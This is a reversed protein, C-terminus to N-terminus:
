LRSGRQWPWKGEIEVELAFSLFVRILIVIALAGLSEITTDIAVTNIIDAAVLFELGLLIARGLRARFDHYGFIINRQGVADILFFYGSFIIGLIIICVGIIEISFIFWLVIRISAKEIAALDAAAAQGLCTSFTLLFAPWFFKGTLRGPCRAGRMM